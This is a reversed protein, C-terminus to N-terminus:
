DPRRGADAQASVGDRPPGDVDAFWGDAGPSAGAALKPACQQLFLQAVLERRSSVGVKEFISKLHDQVTYPTVDLAEAIDLTSGGRLVRSTVERERPSLGYAQVILNAVEPERAASIIIAVRGREDRDLLSADLGIWGGSRRPVRVSALQDSVGDASRRAQQAISVITLPVADSGATSDVVDDLWRSAAPTLSDISDDGALVIVGPAEPGRDVATATRLIARRIGDAIVGGLDAVLDVEREEFSAERRHLAVAGWVVGSRRFVARLEDGAYGAPALFNVYRSSHRLNGGTSASMTGVPCAARALTDFRNVDDELYENAVLQMLHSFGFTSSAHSTPLCTAPDLSLWCSADFPILRRLGHDVAEFYGDLALPQHAARVFPLRHAQITTPM